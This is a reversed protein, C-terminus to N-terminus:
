SGCLRKVSRTLSKLLLKQKELKTKLLMLVTLLQSMNARM